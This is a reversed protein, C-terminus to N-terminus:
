HNPVYQWVAQLHADRAPFRSEEVSAVQHRASSLGEDSMWLTKKAHNLLEELITISTKILSM